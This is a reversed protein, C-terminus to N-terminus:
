KGDRRGPENRNRTGHRRGARAARNRYWTGIALYSTFIIGSTVNSPCGESEARPRAEAEAEEGRVASPGAGSKAVWGGRLPHSVYAGRTPADKGEGERGV